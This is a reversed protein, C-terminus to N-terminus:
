QQGGQSAEAREGKLREGEMGGSTWVLGRVAHLSASRLGVNEEVDRAGM